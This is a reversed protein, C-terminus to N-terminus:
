AYVILDRTKCVVNDRADLRSWLKRQLSSTFMYEYNESGINM